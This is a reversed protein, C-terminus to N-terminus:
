IKELLSKKKEEFESESIVNRDRLAALEGLLQPISQTVTRAGSMANIRYLERQRVIANKFSVPKALFEFTTNGAESATELGVDGFDFVRGLFSQSHYVNNIKDLSADFSSVSLVGEQLVVRHDTLIYEKRRWSMVKWLLYALPILLIGLVWYQGTTISVALLAALAVLNLLVPKILVFWHQRVLLAMNEGSLLQKKSFSM